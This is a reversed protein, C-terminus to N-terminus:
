TVRGIRLALSEVGTKKEAPDGWAVSLDEFLHMLQAQDGMAVCRQGASSTSLAGLLEGLDWHVALEISPTPLPEFPFSLLSFLEEKHHFSKKLEDYVPPWYDMLLKDLRHMVEDVQPSFSLDLGNYFWVALIAGPTCVRRVESYFQDRNFWHLAQAVAVANVTATEIGSDEALAVRYEVNTVLTAHQVQEPSADTAVVKRFHRSLGLAAQGSGTACDWACDLAPAYRAVVEFLGTPYTPRFRAYNASVSSFYDQFQVSNM